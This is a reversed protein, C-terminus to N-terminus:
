LVIILMCTIFCQQQRMVSPHFFSKQCHIKKDCPTRYKQLKKLLNRRVIVRCSHCTLILDVTNRSVVYGTM